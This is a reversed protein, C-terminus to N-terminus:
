QSLHGAPFRRWLVGYSTGEYTAELLGCYQPTSLREYDPDRQQIITFDDGPELKIFKITAFKNTILRKAMFAKHIRTILEMDLACSPLSCRFSSLGWGGVALTFLLVCEGAGVGIGGDSSGGAAASTDVGPLVFASFTLHGM